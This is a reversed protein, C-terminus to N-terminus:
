ELGAGGRGDLDLAEGILDVRVELQGAPVDRLVESLRAVELVALGSAVGGDLSDVVGLGLEARVRLEGERDLLRATLGIEVRVGVASAFAVRLERAALRLDLALGPLQAALAICVAFAAALHLTCGLTVPLAASATVGLHFARAGPLAVALTVALG